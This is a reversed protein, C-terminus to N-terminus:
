VLVKANLQWRPASAGCRASSRSASRAASSSCTSSRWGPGSSRSRTTAAGAAVTVGGETPAFSVRQTGRLKEDEVELTQGSARRTPADRAGARARARRAALGVARARRGAALRGGPARRPAPRRRLDALPRTTGCSRPRAPSAPRRRHQRARPGSLSAARPPHPRPERRRRGAAAGARRGAPRREAEGAETLRYFRRSRREPHEWEGAVLGQAELERLLPYMTNPNVAILGGSVEGVREMLRGGYSPESACSTCCSCRCCAPAACSASSRTRRARAARAPPPRPRRSRRPRPSPAIRAARPCRGLCRADSRGARVPAWRRYSRAARSPAGPGRAPGWAWRSATVAVRWNTRDVGGRQPGGPWRLHDHDLFM